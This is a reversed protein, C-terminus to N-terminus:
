HHQKKRAPITKNLDVVNVLLCCSTFTPRHVRDAHGWTPQEMRTVCSEWTSCNKEKNNDTGRCGLLLPWTTPFTGPWKAGTRAGEGCWPATRGTESEMDSVLGMVVDVSPSARGDTVSVEHSCRRLTRRMKEAPTRFDDGFHFFIYWFSPFFITNIFFHEWAQWVFTWTGSSHCHACLQIKHTEVHLKICKVAPPKRSITTSYFCGSQTLEQSDWKLAPM